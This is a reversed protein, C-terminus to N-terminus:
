FEGVASWQARAAIKGRTPHLRKWTLWTVAQFEAPYYPSYREAAQKYCDAFIDYRKPKLTLTTLVDFCAAQIGHTDVTVSHLDGALNRAFNLVKPGYPFHLRMTTDVPLGTDYRRIREARAICSRLAGGVSPPRQALIDDAIILNREWACQVSIASVVCAVTELQLGYSVRWDNVIGQAKQYWTSGEAREAPTALRYVKGLNRVLTARETKSDFRMTRM